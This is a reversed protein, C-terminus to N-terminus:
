QGRYIELPWLIIQVFPEGDEADPDSEPDGLPWWLVHRVKFVAQPDDGYPLHVTADEAPLPWGDPWAVKPKDTFLPLGVIVVEVNAVPRAVPPPSNV